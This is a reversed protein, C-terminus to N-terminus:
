ERVVRITIPPQTLEIKSPEYGGEMKNLEKIANIRDATTIIIGKEKDSLGKAIKSLLEKREIVSLISQKRQEVEQKIREETENIIKRQEQTYLEYAASLRRDFTRESQQWKKVYAAMIDKRKHGQRILELIFSVQADQGTM